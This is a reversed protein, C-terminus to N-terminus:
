RKKTEDSPHPTRAGTSTTPVNGKQGGDDRPKPPPPQPYRPRDQFRDNSM